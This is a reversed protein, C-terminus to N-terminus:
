HMILGGDVNITQGTIFDSDDSALFVVTGVLDEPEEPRKFCRMQAAANLYDAPYMPHTVVSESSTLGPTIANVRIGADGLERALARTLAIVGGKSSVYHLFFPVGQFFTSSSVNVIKGKGQGKMRPVVAKCCNFVGRLNIGLVHDWEETTIDLFSKKQLGAFLGANNVLIDIRGFHEMAVRGMNKTSEENSVDTHVYLARGGKKTIAEVAAAAELVDAIVVSAGEEALRLGIAKGIGRSGGTVIAVKGELRM